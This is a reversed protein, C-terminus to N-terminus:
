SRPEGRLIAVAFSLPIWLLCARGVLGLAPRWFGELPVGFRALIWGLAAAVIPGVLALSTGWVLWRIRGRDEPGSERASMQVAICSAVPYVLFVIVLYVVVFVLAGLFLPLLASATTWFSISSLLGSVAVIGVLFLLALAMGAIPHALLAGLPGRLRYARWIRRLALVGGLVSSLFLLVAAWRGFSSAALWGEEIALVAIALPPFLLLGYVWGLIGPNRGLIPRERPFVWSFHLLLPFLAVGAVTTLLLTHLFPPGLALPDYQGPGTFLGLISSTAALYAFVLAASALDFLRAAPDAPRRAHVYLGTAAFALAIVLDAILGLRVPGSSLPSELVVELTRTKGERAVRYPLSTGPRAGDRIFRLGETEHIPINGVALIRDGRSIGAAEAPSDPFVLLVVGPPAIPPLAPTGEAESYPDPFFTIGAWGSRSLAAANWAFVAVGAIVIALVAALWVLEEPERKV